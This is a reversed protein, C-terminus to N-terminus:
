YVEASTFTLVDSNEIIAIGCGGVKEGNCHGGVFMHLCEYPTWAEMSRDGDQYSPNLGNRDVMICPGPYHDTQTFTGPNSFANYVYVLVTPWTGAPVMNDYCDYSPGPQETCIYFTTANGQPYQYPNLNAEQLYLDSGTAFPPPYIRECIPSTSGACILTSSCDITRTSAIHLPSDFDAVRGNVTDGDGNLFSSNPYDKIDSEKRVGWIRDFLWPQGAWLATNLWQLYENVAYEPSLGLWDQSFVQFQGDKKIWVHVAYNEDIEYDYDDIKLEVAGASDLVGEWVVRYEETYNGKDVGGDIVTAIPQTLRVQWAAGPGYSIGSKITVKLWGSCPKPHDKFGIIKPQSFDQNEFKVIVHDGNEFAAGNCDMYEIDVNSLSTQQNVNLDQQLSIASDLTVDGVDVILNSLIGYRYTPKWKQWGPLLALNYFLQYASQVAVPVLQGDRVLDYVANSNYGSQINFLIPEGPVEVLGVIGTLNETLDSCWATITEDDPMNHILYAMRKEYRRKTLKLRAQESSGSVSLFIKITYAAIQNELNTIKKTYKDRFYNIQVQYQGDTGGSIITGKGM